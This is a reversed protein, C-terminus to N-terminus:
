RGGRFRQKLLEVAEDLTEAERSIAPATLTGEFRDQGSQSRAERRQERRLKAVEQAFAEMAWPDDFRLLQEQPVGYKQSLQQVVFQKAILELQQQQEQIRKAERMVQLQYEYERQRVEREEPPLQALQSELILRQLQEELQQREMELARRLEVERQVRAQLGKFRKEWEEARRKWEDISETPQEVQEPAQTEETIQPLEASELERNESLEFEEM